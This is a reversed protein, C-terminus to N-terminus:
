RMNELDQVVQQMQEESQKVQSEALHLRHKLAQYEAKSLTVTSDDSTQKGAEFLIPADGTRNPVSIKNVCTKNAQSPVPDSIDELVEDIDSIFWNYILSANLIM